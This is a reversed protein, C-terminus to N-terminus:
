HSIVLRRQLRAGDIDLSLFYLGSPLPGGGVVRASWNWDAIGSAPVVLRWRTVLSGRVDHITGWGLSGPRARLTFRVTGASPTPGFRLSARPVAPRDGGMGVPSTPDRVVVTTSRNNVSKRVNSNWAEWDVVYTGPALPPLTVTFYERGSDYAGDEAPVPVMTGGNISYRVSDITAISISDGAFFENPNQNGLPIELAHGHLHISSGALANVQDSDPFCAPRTDILDPVGNQDGDAWGVQGQTYICLGDPYNGKMLCQVPPTGCYGAAPVLSNSNQVNLYGTKLSCAWWGTSPLHEDLAWFMHAMEHEIYTDLTAGQLASGGNKVPTVFYPGGLRAHSIAGDAFQGTSSSDDQVAFLLAGWSAGLRSRVGNAADYALTTADSKYGLYGTLVDQIWNDEEAAMRDIPEYRTALGAHVEIAFTLPVSRRAAFATWQALGRITSRVVSDRLAPTWDYRNPDISGDSEPFLIGVGVRGIMFESTDRWRAGFPMGQLSGTRAVTGREGSRTLPALIDDRGGFLDIDSDGVSSPAAPADLWLFGAPLAARGRPSERVYFLHPPLAIEVRFGARALRDLTSAPDDSGEHWVMRLGQPAPASAISTALAAAERAEQPGLATAGASAITLSAVGAVFAAVFAGRVFGCSVCRM